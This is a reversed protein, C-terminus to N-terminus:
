FIYVHIFVILNTYLKRLYKNIFLMISIIKELFPLHIIIDRQIKIDEINITVEGGKSSVVLSASNKGFEASEVFTNKHHLVQHKLM